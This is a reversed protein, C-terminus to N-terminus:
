QRGALRSRERASVRGPVAGRRRRASGSACITSLWLMQIMAMGSPYNTLCSLYSKGPDVAWNVVKLALSKDDRPPWVFVIFLSVIVLLWWQVNNPQWM